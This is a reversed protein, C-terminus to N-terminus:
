KLLYTYTTFKKMGSYPTPEYCYMVLFNGHTILMTLYQGAYSDNPLLVQRDVQKFILGDSGLSRLRVGVVQMLGEPQGPFITLQSNENIERWETGKLSNPGSAGAIRINVLHFYNAPTPGIIDVLEDRNRTASWRNFAGETFRFDVKNGEQSWEGSFTNVADYWTFKGGEHLRIAFLRNDDSLADDTFHGYLLTNALNDQQDSSTGDKKCSVVALLGVLWPFIYTILHKM